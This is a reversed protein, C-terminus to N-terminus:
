LARYAALHEELSGMVEELERVVREADAATFCMPPKLKIVNSAMGDTSLLIRRRRMAYVIASAAETWPVRKPDAADHLIELGVMLGMGRVSGIFPFRAHLRGFGELLVKGVAAANEQLRDTQIAELVALAVRGAVPNGGFTNFYEMGNNFSAAIEPTTVVMAVPFGNGMPKGLTLIDPCVDPGQLEFAWM